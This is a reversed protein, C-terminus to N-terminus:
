DLSFIIKQILSALKDSKHRVINGSTDLIDYAYLMYEDWLDNSEDISVFESKQEMYEKLLKKAPKKTNYIIKDVRRDIFKEIKKVFDYGEFSHTEGFKTMINVVYIIKANTEKFANKVGSVIFNPIISTYLDGPGIIIYDAEKIAEVVPPYVSISDSHHPVLYLDVIKENQSERREGINKEGCIRKGNALLAVLTAKDTTVPLIRGRVNLIESLGQIGEPFSGTYQSLMTLLMNGSNHGKLRSNGSFRKLLIDRVINQHQSLALVCKLVDGPPLVGLEDRLRGTSGGSDIMSVVATIDIKDIKRLGSLLIFQGSGGGVTVLKKNKMIINLM